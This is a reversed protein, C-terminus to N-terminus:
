HLPQPIWEKVVTSPGPEWFDSGYSPSMVLKYRFIMAGDSPDRVRDIDYGFGRFDAHERLAGNKTIIWAIAAAMLPSFGPDLVRGDVL